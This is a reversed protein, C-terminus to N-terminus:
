PYNRLDERAEDTISHSARAAEIIQDYADSLEHAGICGFNLVELKDIRYRGAYLSVQSRTEVLRESVTGAHLHVTCLIPTSSIPTM